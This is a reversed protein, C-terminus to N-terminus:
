GDFACGTFRLQPFIVFNPATSNQAAVFITDDLCIACGVLVTVFDDALAAFINANVFTLGDFHNTIGESVSAHFPLKFM